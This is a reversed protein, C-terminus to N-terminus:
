KKRKRLGVRRLFGGIAPRWLKRWLKSDLRRAALANIVGTKFFGRAFLEMSILYQEHVYQNFITTAFSSQLNKYYHADQVISRYGKRVYPKLWQEKIIKKTLRHQVDSKSSSISVPSLRYLHLSEPIVRLEWKEAMRRWLDMDEVPWWEQRYGGAQYFASKRFIASSHGIPNVLYFSRKLDVSKTPSTIITAAKDSEDIYTFFTGVLAIRPHANIARMEKELRLPLSIDDADMRAILHGRAIRVGENM